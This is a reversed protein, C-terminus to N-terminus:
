GPLQAPALRDDRETAVQALTEDGYLHQSGTLFWLERAEHEAVNTM